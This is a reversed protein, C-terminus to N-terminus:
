SRVQGQSLPLTIRFVTRGPKSSVDITGGHDTVIRHTIALGLGTGGPKTTFFADFIPADESALGPGEDEVEVTVHRPQRRMRLVANGGGRPELSEIANNLLNLLVQELRGADGQIEVDATPLDLAVMVHAADAQSRVLDRARSLLAAMSVPVLQLPQPRAFALFESVLTALRKIEDAVIQAAELMEPDGGRRRIARDLFAVHLQAGNLPNRIEHALGAALTGVAALKEAQLTREELAKADTVDNGLAFMVVEDEERDSPAYALHWVIERLRGSRARLLTPLTTPEAAATSAAALANAYRDQLDEPFLTKVFPEGLVQDREYGTVREAERNFLRVAGHADLGVILARALEVANVYRHETRVLARSLEQMEAHDVNRIRAVFSDQYAELMVGLEIDLLRTLADRTATADKLTAASEEIVRTLAVRVLAMATFMYRQPLGIRVHVRGVHATEEFYTQDYTGGFLRHMWKVLSRQLRVIQEEGTFVAHADEHERTRDYFERAVREFHPAVVGHVAALRAADTDDFRVYRKMEEYRSHPM